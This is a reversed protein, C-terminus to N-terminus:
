TTRVFDSSESHWWRTKIIAPLSNLLMRNKKMLNVLDFHLEKRKSGIYSGVVRHEDFRQYSKVVAYTRGAARSCETPRECM